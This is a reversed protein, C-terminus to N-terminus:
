DGKLWPARTLASPAGCRWVGETSCLEQEARGTSLKSLLASAQDLSLEPPAPSCGSVAALAVGLAICFSRM